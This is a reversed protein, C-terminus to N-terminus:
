ECSFRPRARGPIRDRTTVFIEFVGNPNIYSWSEALLERRDWLELFIRRHREADELEGRYYAATRDDRAYERKWWRLDCPDASAPASLALGLLCATANQRSSM